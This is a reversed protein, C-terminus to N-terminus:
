GAGEAPGLPMGGGGVQAWVDPGADRSFVQQLKGVELAELCGWRMLSVLEATAWFRFAGRPVIAAEGQQTVQLVHSLHVLLSQVDAAIEGLLHTTSLPSASLM